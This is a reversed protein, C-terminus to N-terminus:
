DQNGMICMYSVFTKKKYVCFDYRLAHTTGYVLRRQPLRNINNNVQRVMCEFAQKRLRETLIEGAVSNM